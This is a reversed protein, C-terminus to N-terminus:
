SKLIKSKTRLLCVGPDLIIRDRSINYKDCLEFTKKLFERLCLILDKEYVEEDQNHMAIIPLDNTSMLEAMEGDDYQLGWIDNLIDAGADFAAAAVRYKYTDISIIVDPFKEKM